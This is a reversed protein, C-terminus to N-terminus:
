GGSARGPPGQSRRTRHRRRGENRGNLAPRARLGDITVVSGSPLLSSPLSSPLSSAPTESVDVAAHGHAEVGVARPLREILCPDVTRLLTTLFAHQSKTVSSTMEREGSAAECLLARDADPALPATVDVWKGAATRNWWHRIAIFGGGGSCHWLQWGKVISWSPNVAQARLANSFSQLPPLDVDVGLELDAAVTVIRCSAAQLGLTDDLKAILSEASEQPLVCADEPSELFATRAHSSAVIDAEALWCAPM